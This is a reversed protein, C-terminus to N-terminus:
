KINLYLILAINSNLSLIFWAPPARLNIQNELRLIGKVKVKEFM